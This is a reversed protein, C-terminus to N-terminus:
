AHRGIGQTPLPDPSSEAKHLHDLAHAERQSDDLLGIRTADLMAAYCTQFAQESPLESAIASRLKSLARTADSACGLNELQEDSLEILGFDVGREVAEGHGPMLRPAGDRDLWSWFLAPRLLQQQQEPALVHSFLLPFLRPDYYRLLGLQGGNRAELCRGLYGALDEFPWASALALVRAQPGYDALLGLLWQRQLPEELDIRLLLPALEEAAAEPLGSFLSHGAIPPDISRVSALLPPRGAQDVILHLQTTAVRACASALLDLWAATPQNTM